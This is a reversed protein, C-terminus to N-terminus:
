WGGLRGGAYPDWQGLEIRELLAQEVTEQDEPQVTLLDWLVSMADIPDDHAGFPFGECYDFFTDNWPGAVVYFWGGAARDIWPQARAVKDGREPVPRIDYGLLAPDTLLDEVAPKAGAAGVGIPVGKGDSQAVKRIRKRTDPWNERFIELHSLVMRVYGDDPDLWWGGKIGASWDPDAKAVQQATYAVDWARHWLVGPPAVPLVRFTNRNLLNGGAKRPTQQWMAPWLRVGMVYAIKALRAADHRAPDLPEGPARGLPDPFADM